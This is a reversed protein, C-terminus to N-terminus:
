KDANGANLLLPLEIFTRETSYYAGNQPMDHISGQDCEPAGIAFFITMLLRGQLCTKM